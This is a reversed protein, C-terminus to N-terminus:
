RQLMRTPRSQADWELGLYVASALVLPALFYLARYALLAAMVEAAPVTRGLLALFVAELVGLGAPVDLLALALASTLLAALVQGYGARGHMLAHLLAALLLWNLASLMAQVAAVGPPPLHLAHGRLVLHRGSALLCAALYAAVAALLGIGAWQMADAAFGWGPSIAIRRTALAVGAVLAFGLWNTFVNFLWFAATLHLPVGHRLYLRFRVGAGAPGLNLACAHSVFAIALLRVAHLPHATTRRALLDFGGYAAYSAAGLLAAAALSQGPLTALATRTAQWDVAHLQRAVLGAGALLLALTLALRHGRGYGRWPVPRPTPGPGRFHATLADHHATHHALPDM